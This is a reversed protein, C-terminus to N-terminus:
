NKYLKKLTKKNSSSTQLYIKKTNNNTNKDKNVLENSKEYFILIIDNLDQFMAISKEFTIIDINKILSLYNRSNKDLLYNKVDDPELAINYKLISLLSYRRENDISNKKLIGLIEEHSIVNKISLLLTEQKIKDIENDRNVYIVSLNIYYLDEKYFDQYLKDTKEFESIWEDDLRNYEMDM